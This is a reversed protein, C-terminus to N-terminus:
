WGRARSGPLPATGRDPPAGVRRPTSSAAFRPLDRRHDLIGAVALEATSGGHIGQGSCLVVDSPVRDLWAEVGATLVQVVKLQPMRALDARSTAITSYGAVYFSVREVEAPPAQGSPWVVVGLQPDVESFEALAAAM